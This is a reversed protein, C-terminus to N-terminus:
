LDGNKVAIAAREHVDDVGLDPIKSETVRRGKGALTGEKLAKIESITSRRDIVSGNDEPEPSSAAVKAEKILREEFESPHELELAQPGSSAVQELDKLEDPSLSLKEVHQIPQSLSAGGDGAVSTSGVLAPPKVGKPLPPLGQKDKDRVAEQAQKHGEDELELERALAELEKDNLEDLGEFDKTPDSALPRNGLPRVVNIKDGTSPDKRTFRLPKVAHHITSMFTKPATPKDDEVLGSSFTDNRELENQLQKLEEPSLDLAAFDDISARRVGNIADPLPSAPLSPGKEPPPPPPADLKLFQRLEGFEVAEDFQEISGIREGDVMICPLENTSDKRKWWRKANEDSAVDHTSFPVRLSTLAREVREHRGRISPNSLISTVYVDIIAM